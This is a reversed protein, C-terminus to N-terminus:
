RGEKGGWRERGGSRWECLSWRGRTSKGSPCLPLTCRSACRCSLLFTRLVSRASMQRLAECGNHLTGGRGGWVGRGREWGEKGERPVCRRRVQAISATAVNRKVEHFMLAKDDWPLGVHELLESIIQLSPHSHSPLPPSSPLSPLPPQHAELVGRKVQEGGKFKLREEEV